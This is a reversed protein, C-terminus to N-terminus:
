PLAEVNIFIQGRIEGGPYQPTHVNAYTYGAMMAQTLEGFEGATIGQGTPGIVDAPVITGEISASTSQPCAPKTSGGCFFVSVGGNVARQGLHIHAQTPPGTLGSWRLRFGITTPNLLALELEGRAGPVSLSPVEEFARLNAGSATMAAKSAPWAFAGTAVAAAAVGFVILLLIVLRKTRM